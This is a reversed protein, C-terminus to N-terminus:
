ELVLPPDARKVGDHEAFFRVVVGRERADLTGDVTAAEMLPVAVALKLGDRDGDGPEEAEKLWAKLREIM